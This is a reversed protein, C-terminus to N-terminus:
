SKLRIQSIESLTELQAEKSPAEKFEVGEDSLWGNLQWLKGVSSVTGDENLIIPHAKMLFGNFSM